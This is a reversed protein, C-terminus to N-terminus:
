QQNNSLPKRDCLYSKETYYGFEGSKKAYFVSFMQRIRLLYKLKNVLFENSSHRQKTVRYLFSVIDLQSNRKQALASKLRRTIGYSQGELLCIM